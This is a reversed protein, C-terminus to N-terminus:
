TFTLHEPLVGTKESDTNTDATTEDVIEVYEANPEDDDLKKLYAEYERRDILGKRVSHEILRKDFTPLKLGFESKKSM